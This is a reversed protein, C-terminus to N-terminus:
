ANLLVYKYIIYVNLYINSIITKAVTNFNSSNLMCIQFIQCVYLKVNDKELINNSILIKHFICQFM